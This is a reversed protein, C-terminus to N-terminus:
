ETLGDGGDCNDDTYNPDIADSASTQTCKYECGCVGTLPNGDIDWLNQPCGNGCAYECGCTGTSPDNDLDVTGPACGNSCSYECGCTGTSPDNDVNAT